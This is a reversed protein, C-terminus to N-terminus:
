LNADPFEIGCDETETVSVGGWVSTHPLFLFGCEWWMAGTCGLDGTVQMTLNDGPSFLYPIRICEGETWGTAASPLFPFGLFFDVKQPCHCDPFFVPNFCVETCVPGSPPHVNTKCGCICAALLVWGSVLALGRSRKKM